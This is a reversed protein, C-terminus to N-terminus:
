RLRFHKLFAGLLLTNSVGFRKRVRACTRLGPFLGAEFGRALTQMQLRDSHRALSNCLDQHLIRDNENEPVAKLFERLWDDRMRIAKIKLEVNGTSSITHPNRRYCFVPENTHAIGKDACLVYATLSDAAWALPTPFFGNVAKLSETRYMFDSVFLQRNSAVRHWILDYVSEYEAWSPTLQIPRSTSDLIRSRCHYVDLTPYKDILRQFAELYAPTMKDDDGMLVFFRGRAYDLCRNWNRVVNEAGINEANEYYRIREDAYSHVIDRVPDPSADNVVILEFDPVTQLLISDICERLYAGKFAPVGISFSPTVPGNSRSRADLEDRSALL